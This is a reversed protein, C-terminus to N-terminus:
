WRGNGGPQAQPPTMIEVCAELQARAALTDM